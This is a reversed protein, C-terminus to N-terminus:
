VRDLASKLDKPKERRDIEQSKSVAELTAQQQVVQIRAAGDERLAENANGRAVEGIATAVATGLGLFARLSAWLGLLWTM